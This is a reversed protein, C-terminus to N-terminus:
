WGMLDLFKDIVDDVSDKSKEVKTTFEDAMKSLRNAAEFIKIMDAPAIESDVDYYKKMFAAMADCIVKAAAEKDKEKQVEAEKAKKDADVQKMAKNLEATISKAIEDATEGNMLRTYFDYSMTIVEKNYKQFM